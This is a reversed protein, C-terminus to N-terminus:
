GGQALKGEERLADGSGKEGERQGRATGEMERGESIRNEEESRRRKM